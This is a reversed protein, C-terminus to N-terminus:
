FDSQIDVDFDKELDKRFQELHRKWTEKFRGGLHVEDVADLVSGNDEFTPDLFTVDMQLNGDEMKTVTMAQNWRHDDRASYSVLFTNTLNPNLPKLANYVATSVDAYHRCVVQTHELFVRDIPMSDLDSTALASIPAMRRGQNRMEEYNRTTELYNNLVGSALKKAEESVSPDELMKQIAAIEPPNDPLAPPIGFYDFRFEVIRCALEVAERPQLSKIREETYGLNSAEQLVATKFAEPNEPPHIGDPYKSGVIESLVELDGDIEDLKQRVEEPLEARPKNSVPDTYAGADFGESLYHRLRPNQNIPDSSAQPNYYSLRQVKVLFRPKHAQIVRIQTPQETHANQTTCGEGFLGAGAVTLVAASGLKGVYEKVVKFYKGM